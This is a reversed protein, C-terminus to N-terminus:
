KPFSRGTSSRDTYIHVSDYRSVHPFAHSLPTPPCFLSLQVRTCVLPLIRYLFPPPPQPIPCLPSSSLARCECRPRVTTAFVRQLDAVCEEITPFLKANELIEVSGAALARASESLIDCRPNVVRLEHLGFNLMARSVSGVNQDLFPNVLIICPMLIESAAAEAYAGRKTDPQQYRFGEFRGAAGSYLRSFSDSLRRRHTTSTATGTRYLAMSTVMIVFWWSNNSRGVM